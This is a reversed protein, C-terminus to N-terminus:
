DSVLVNKWEDTWFMHKRAFEMRAVKHAATLRPKGVRRRYDALPRSHLIQRVRRATVPLQLDARIKTSIM